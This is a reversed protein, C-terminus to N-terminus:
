SHSEASLARRRSISASNSTRTTTCGAPCSGRTAIVPISILTFPNSSVPQSLRMAVFGGPGIWIPVPRNERNVASACTPPAEKRSVALPTTFEPVLYRVTRGMRTIVRVDRVALCGQVPLAAQPSKLVTAAPWPAFALTFVGSDPHASLNCRLADTGADIVVVMLVAHPLRAQWGKEHSHVTAGSVANATAVALRRSRTTIQWGPANTVADAWPSLRGDCPSPSSPMVERRNRTAM